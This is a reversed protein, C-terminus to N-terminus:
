GKDLNICCLRRMDLDMAFSAEQFYIYATLCAIIIDGKRDQLHMQKKHLSTSLDKYSFDEESCNVVYVKECFCMENKM